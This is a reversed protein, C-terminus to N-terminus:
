NAFIRENTTTVKPMQPGIQLVGKANVSKVLALL